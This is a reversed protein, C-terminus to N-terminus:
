PTPAEEVTEATRGPAARRRCIETQVRASSIADFGLEALADHLTSSHAGIVEDVRAGRETLRAEFDRWLAEADVPAPACDAPLRGEPPAANEHRTVTRCRQCLTDFGDRTAWAPHSCRRVTGCEVCAFRTPDGPAPRQGADSGEASPQEAAGEAEDAGVASEAASGAGPAGAM